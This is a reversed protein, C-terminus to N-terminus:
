YKLLAAERYQLAPFSRRFVLCKAYEGYQECHRLFLASLLHTKGGGRGGGLFLDFQEPVAMAKAQWQSLQDAKLSM